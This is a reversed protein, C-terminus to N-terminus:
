NRTFKKKQLLLCANLPQKTNQPNDFTQDHRFHPNIIEITTVNKHHPGWLSWGTVWLELVSADRHCLDAVVEVVSFNITQGSHGSSKSTFRKVHWKAGCRCGLEKQDCSRSSIIAYSKTLDIQPVINSSLSSTVWTVIADGIHHHRWWHSPLMLTTFIIDGIYCYRWWHSPLMLSTFIIDGIYCYRWRHSASTVSTVIADGIYCYCWQHSPLMLSTVIVDGTHLHRWRHLLLTM